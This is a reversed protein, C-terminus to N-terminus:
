ANRLYAKYYKEMELYCSPDRTERLEKKEPRKKNEFQKKTTIPRNYLDEFRWGQQLACKIFGSPNVVYKKFYDSNLAKLINKKVEDTARLVLKVIDLSVEYKLLKSVLPEDEKRIEVNEEKQSSTAKVCKENNEKTKTYTKDELAFGASELSELENDVDLEPHFKKIDAVLKEVNLSIHTTPAGAFKWVKTIIYGKDKLIQIARRAQKVTIRLEEFWDKLRKALWYRGERFIRLKSKGEKTPLWWYVIQGLVIGATLDGTLDVYTKSVRYSQQTKELWLVEYVSSASLSIINM